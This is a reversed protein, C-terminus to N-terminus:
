WKQVHEFSEKNGVDYVLILADAGRYYALGLSRFREQGASDWIQQTVRSFIEFQTEIISEKVLFDAGITARYQKREQNLVYRELVSTKGRTSCATGM